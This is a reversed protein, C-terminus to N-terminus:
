IETQESLRRSQCISNSKRLRFEKPPLTFLSKGNSVGAASEGSLDAPFYETSVLEGDELISAREIVNKLERVNGEWEYNKFIKETEPALGSLKKDRRKQNIQDIYHQALLLIDDGRKKLPPINIQIVSLRYYLDLRFNGEGSEKKLDRNSAAIIRADIPIDKLGGIRRFRGDELVRLLKAQLRSKWKASRTWSSRGATPKNM